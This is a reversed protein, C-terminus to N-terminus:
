IALIEGLTVGDMARREDCHCVVAPQALRSCVRWRLAPVYADWPRAVDLFGIVRAPNIMESIALGFGFVSGILSGGVFGGILNVEAM